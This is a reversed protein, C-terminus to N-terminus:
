ITPGDLSKVLERLAGTEDGRTEVTHLESAVTTFTEHVFKFSVSSSSPPVDKIAPGILLFQGGLKKLKYFAHNLLAARDSDDRDPSLKYFEDIVFFDVRNFERDVAREQTLVYIAKDAAAQMSHTIIKYTKRFASLRRRTEDILALTPVVIAIQQYVGSAVVADILLSKGFSTPASLVVNEGRMLDRYVRAQASHFVVNVLGAPRHFEYALHDAESLTDASLYPFLGLERVAADLIQRAPGFADRHELAHLVVDHVDPSEEQAISWAVIKAAGFPDAKIADVDSVVARAEAFNM